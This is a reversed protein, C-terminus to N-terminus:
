SLHGNESLWEIVEEVSSYELDGKKNNRLPMLAVSEGNEDKEYRTAGRPHVITGRERFSVTKSQKTTPLHKAPLLRMVAALHVSNLDKFKKVSGDPLPYPLDRLWLDIGTKCDKLLGKRGADVNASLIAMAVGGIPTDAMDSLSEASGISGAVREPPVGVEDVLRFAAAFGRDRAEKYLFDSYNSYHAKSLEEEADIRACELKELTEKIGETGKELIKRAREKCKKLSM